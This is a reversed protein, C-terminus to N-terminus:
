GAKRMQVIRDDVEALVREGVELLAKAYKRMSELGRHNRKRRDGDLNIDLEHIIKNRAVFIRRLAARDVQLGQLGLASATRLLEDVSQLSGGTLHKIYQEVVANQPSASTLIKAVFTAGGIAEGDSDGRVGRAVYKQLGERVHEDAPALAPVADRILQKLMSDLGAAAMVLMARLLDQEDDTSIGRPKGREQRALEFARLLANASDHARELIVAAKACEESPAKALVFERVTRTSPRVTKAM